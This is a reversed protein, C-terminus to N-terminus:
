KNKLAAVHYASPKLSGVEGGSMGFRTMSIRGQSLYSKRKTTTEDTKAGSAGIMSKRNQAVISKRDSHAFKDSLSESKEIFENLRDQTLNSKREEDPEPPPPVYKIEPLVTLKDNMCRLLLVKAM